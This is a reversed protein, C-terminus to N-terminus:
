GIKLNKREYKNLYSAMKLIHDQLYEYSSLLLGCIQNHLHVARKMLPATIENLSKFKINFM